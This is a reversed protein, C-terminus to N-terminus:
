RFQRQSEKKFLYGATLAGMSVLITLPVWKFITSMINSHIGSVSSGGLTDSGMTLTISSITPLLNGFVVFLIVLGTIAGMFTLVGKTAEM